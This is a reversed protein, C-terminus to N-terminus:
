HFEFAGIDWGAGLPRTVGDFDNPVSSLNLGANIAPSAAGLHFDAGPANVFL